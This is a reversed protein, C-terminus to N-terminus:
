ALNSDFSIVDLSCKLLEDLLLMLVEQRHGRLRVGEEFLEKMAAKGSVFGQM